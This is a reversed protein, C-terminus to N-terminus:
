ESFNWMHVRQSKNDYCALRSNDLDVGAQVGGCSIIRRKKTSPPDAYFDKLEFQRILKFPCVEYVEVVYQGTEKRLIVSLMDKHCTMGTLVDNQEGCSISGSATVSLFTGMDGETDFVYGYAYQEVCGQSYAVYVWGDKNDNEQVIVRCPNMFRRLPINIIIRLSDMRVMVLSDALGEDDDLGPRIRMGMTRTMIIAMHNESMSADSVYMGNFPSTWVKRAEDELLEYLNLNHESIHILFKGKHMALRLWRGDAVRDVYEIAPTWSCEGEESVERDWVFIKWCASVAYLRQDHYHVLNLVSSPSKNVHLDVCGDKTSLILRGTFTGAAVGDPILCISSIAGMRVGDYTYNQTDEREHSSDWRLRTLGDLMETQNPTDFACMFRRLTKHDRVKSFVEQRWDPNVFALQEETYKSHHNVLVRTSLEALTPVGQLNM